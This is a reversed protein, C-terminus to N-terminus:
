ASAPLGSVDGSFPAVQCCKQDLEFSLEAVSPFGLALRHTLRDAFSYNDAFL